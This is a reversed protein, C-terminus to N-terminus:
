APLTRVEGAKARFHGANESKRGKRARYRVKWKRANKRIQDNGIIKGEVSKGEVVFWVIFVLCCSLMVM